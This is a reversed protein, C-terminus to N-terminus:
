PRRSATSTTGTCSRRRLSCTRSRAGCRRIPPSCRWAPVSRSRGAGRSPISSTRTSRTSCHRRSSPPVRVRPRGRRGRGAPRAQAAGRSHAGVGPGPCEGPLLVWRARRGPGGGEGAPRGSPDTGLTAKAAHWAEARGHGPRAAAAALAAHVETPGGGTGRRVGRVAGTPAPVAGRARAGGPRGSRGRRRRLGPGLAGARRGSILDLNGTSDAAAILLWRQAGPSLHRVQRVYHAELHHGVPIPEDALSSETLERVSLESALDILALPNGGTAGAIQSALAPDISETLTSLLLRTAPEPELGDIRLTPVGAMQAELHAADRSAFVLAVSEAELRRAVFALVDLSESDLLYADDVACVVPEAEGAAALLGLLGLGVLFRDPPPGPASGAAVRLAQQHREPLAPLHSRLPIALRHLAAFPFTAEAEYGDVRILQMGHLDATTAELLATKGIGPDGALLLAGGRGNRAHGLLTGIRRLETDRGLLRTGGM